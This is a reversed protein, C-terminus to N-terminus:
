APAKVWRALATRLDNLSVPKSFYDDMGSALCEMRDQARADATLAVIPVHLGTVLESRRIARTATLGDMDPMQLDMFVVDFNERRVAEIAARGDDASTVTFGIKELQKRGLRQNVPNDEVLLVHGLSAAPLDYREPLAPRAESPQKPPRAHTFDAVCDFLVSQRLPKVLLAGFGAEVPRRGDVLTYVASTLVVPLDARGSAARVDDALTRLADQAIAMDVFALAYSTGRATRRACLRLAEDRSGAEDVEIGWARLYRATVSRAVVNADAVLVPEHPLTRLGAPAANAVHFPLEFWFTSGAHPASTVGITGGMLEVLGKSITLGLGTGGYRRTISGDAQAFATFLREVADPELGIGTDVVEFRIAVTTPTQALISAAISVSGEATFKTANGVLNTLIQRIRLEDGLVLPPLEPPVFTTFVLGKRQAQPALLQAVSEICTTVNFARVEVALKGAEMKSFDLVDDIIRLLAQGSSRVTTIFEHQERDLSSDLLLETMGLIANMPTRIEHSITAVFESKLRSAENAQLLAARLRAEAERRVSINRAVIFVIERGGILAQRMAVDITFRSGDRRRHVTEYGEAMARPNNLVSRLDDHLEPVRLDFVTLACLEERTYGYARAAADNAEVIKPGDMFYMIESSQEYLIRYRAAAAERDALLEYAHRFRADVEALEDDGTDPPGVTEGAAFRQTNRNLAELRRAINASLSRYLVLTTAVAVIAAFILATEAIERLRDFAARRARQLRTEVTDFDYRASALRAQLLPDALRRAHALAAGEYRGLRLLQPPNDSVLERLAAFDRTVDRATTTALARREDRAVAADGRALEIAIQQSLNIVVASHRALAQTSVTQTELVAVAALVILLGALPVLVLRLIRRGIRTGM